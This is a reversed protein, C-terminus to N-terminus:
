LAGAANKNFFDSACAVYMSWVAGYGIGFVVTSAM